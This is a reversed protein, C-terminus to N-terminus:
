AVRGFIALLKTQADANEATKLRKGYLDTANIDKMHKQCLEYLANVAKTPLDTRYDISTALDWGHILAEISLQFMYEKGVVDAYSLHITANLDLNKVSVEIAKASKQYSEIPKVGLVDGEFRDGVEAVTKGNFLEPAWLWEYTLHNLLKRVDWPACPTNISWQSDKIHNVIDNTHGLSVEFLEKLDM